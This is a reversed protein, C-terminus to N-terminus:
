RAAAVHMSQVTPRPLRDPPRGESPHHKRTPLREQRREPQRMRQKAVAQSAEIYRQLASQQERTTLLHQLAHLLSGQRRLLCEVCGRDRIPEGPFNRATGNSCGHCRYAQVTGPSHNRNKKM